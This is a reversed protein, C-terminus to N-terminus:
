IFKKIREFIKKPTTDEHGYAVPIYKDSKEAGPPTWVYQFSPEFRECKSVGALAYFMVTPVGSYTAIIPIGCAFGIVLSAEKIMSLTTDVDVKGVYDQIIKGKDLKKLEVLYDSDWEAGIAIPKVGSHKNMLNLLDMWNQYTWSNQNWNKNNGIASTYFLVYKNNNREKLSETFTRSHESLRVPLNFNTKYEPHIEDLRAGKIWMYGGFDIMYDVDPSNQEICSPNEKDWHKSFESFHRDIGKVEDIFPFVKLYDYTYYHIPDRHVVITLHDIGNIEKFSEMKTLVWYSDGMGPPTGVSVRKIYKKRNKLEDFSKLVKGAPIEKNCDHKMDMCNCFPEPAVHAFNKLNFKDRIVHFPAAAGGFITFCKARIAISAIMFFSPYTIVMDAIKLLGLITSLSVEGKNFEKDIGTTDGDFWEEDKKIDALGLYFYEDKYKDIIMQYYEPKPNRAPCDWEKRNTPRRIICLKKDGISLSNVLKRAESIWENKVPFSFDFDVRNELEVFKTQIKKQSSPGLQDWRVVDRKTPISSWTNKPLGDIHKKQTRLPMKKPYVFEVNPIDWYIEPFATTLYLKKYEEALDKIIPRQYLNDGFGLAGHFYLSNHEHKIILNSDYTKIYEYGSGINPIDKFDKFEFCKVGSKRNLNIVTLSRGRLAEEAENLYEIWREYVSDNGPSKYGDHFWIQKGRGDRKMDFGLLYITTAGLCVALNIAAFGSNGGDFLGDQLDFTMRPTRSLPVSYVGYNYLAGTINLAIKMAKTKIFKTRVDQGFEGSLLPEYFTQNDMFFMISPDFYEFSRNISITLENDLKSFDFGKLSPGGGVIFCRSGSWTKDPYRECLKEHTFYNQVPFEQGTRKIGDDSVKKLQAWNDIVEQSRGNREVARNKIWQQDAIM